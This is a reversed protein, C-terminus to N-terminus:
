RLIASIVQEVLQTRPDVSYLYGDNYYYRNGSDLNYRNRWDYPVQDYNWNYGSNGAWRQGVNFRKKAQGPPLCGNNKKALGPPCSNGWAGYAGSHHQGHKAGQGKHKAHDPKAMAPASLGLALAGIMLLTKM